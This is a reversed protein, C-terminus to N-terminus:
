AIMLNPRLVFNLWLGAEFVGVTGIAVKLHRLPELVRASAETSHCGLHQACLNTSINKSTNIVDNYFACLLLAM